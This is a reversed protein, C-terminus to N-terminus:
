GRCLRRLTEGYLAIRKAGLQPVAALDDAGYRKLHLLAKAPLVAQLPVDRRKAENRRWDKLKTERQREGPAVEVVPPAPPLQPPQSRASRMVDIIEDGLNRLVWGRLRTQKLSGYNTAGRRALAVLADNGIIRGTPMDHERAREDRWHMLALAIAQNAPKLGRIGKLRWLDAPAFGAQHPAAQEVAANAIALEEELDQEAIRKRLEAALAPLHVVDDVAYVLAQDDLPRTSWDYTSHDKPLSVGCVEAVLAGYGTSRFGLLSAAQQTDFVGRLDIAYDRKLCAVDYEGGHMLCTTRSSSLAPALPALAAPECPLALTDVLFCAGDINLQLLCVRERYAFMSNSETDLAILAATDLRQGLEAIGHPTDIWTWASADTM